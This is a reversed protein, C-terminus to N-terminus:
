QLFATLDGGGIEYVAGGSAIWFHNLAGFGMGEVSAGATGQYQFLNQQVWNGNSDKRYQGLFDSTMDSVYVYQTNTSPAVIVELGDMHNGALDPYGFEAMWSQQAPCWSYVRRAGEYGAYWKGDQDGYGLMSLNFNALPQAVVTSTKTAPFYQKIVGYNPASLMFVSDATAYMEGRHAIGMPANDPAATTYTAIWTLTRQEIPGPEAPNNPHQNPELKGDGDSDLLTVKYVDMAIGQAYWAGRNVYILDGYSDVDDVNTTIKLPSNTSTFYAYQYYTGTPVNTGINTLTKCTGTAADCKQGTAASCVLAPSKPVWKAPPGVDCQMVQNCECNFQGAKCVQNCLGGPAGWDGNADCTVEHLNVCKITGPICACGPATHNGDNVVGNCDNDVQDLCSDVDPIIQGLCAGFSKGDAACTKKGGKCAGVNMTGAPGTYCDAQSGPLCVCGAGGKGFGDNIVGNCDNDSGDACTDTVPTVQGACAGWADGKATCTAIGAKCLGVDQTGDPGTYCTSVSQPFCTCGAAGTLVGDNVVGNCDNDLMDTCVDSSPIVDGTCPGYGTGLPDCVQTGAVCVGVNVTGPPGGYCPQVSNPACTCGAGGVENVEGDCDDDVPTSCTEPSPLLQGTCTTWATGQANCTWTGDHCSGVGRTPAPGTYCNETANPTCLCGAGDENVKGDCDDDILNFCTETGPLVEGACPLWATGAVNCTRTGAKCPGVGLTDPFGTYCDETASPTCVCATGGVGAPTECGNAADNDCNEFDPKCGNIICSGSMCLPYANPITCPKACQGCNDLDTQLDVCQKSCCTLGAECGHQQSCGATCTSTVNDCIQGLACESDKVCGVCAHTNTDCVVAGADSACDEITDCGAMCVFTQPDCYLGKPCM